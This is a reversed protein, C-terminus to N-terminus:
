QNLVKIRRYEFVQEYEMWVATPSKGGIRREKGCHPCKYRPVKNECLEAIEVQVYCSKCILVSKAFKIVNDGVEPTIADKNM